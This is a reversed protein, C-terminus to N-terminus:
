ADPINLEGVSSSVFSLMANYRSGKAPSGQGEQEYNFCHM